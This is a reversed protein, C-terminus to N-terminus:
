PVVLEAIKTDIAEISRYIYCVRTAAIELSTLKINSLEAM